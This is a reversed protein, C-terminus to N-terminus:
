TRKRTIRTDRHIWTTPTGVLSFTTLKSHVAILPLPSVDAGSSCLAVGRLLEKDERDEFTWDIVYRTIDSDEVDEVLFSMLSGNVDVSSTENSLGPIGPLRRIRTSEGASDRHIKDPISSVGLSVVYTVTRYSLRFFSDTALFLVHLESLSTRPTM